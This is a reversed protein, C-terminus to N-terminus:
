ESEGVGLEPLVNTLDDREREREGGRGGEERERESGRLRARGKKEVIDGSHQVKGQLDGTVNLHKGSLFSTFDLAFDLYVVDCQCFGTVYM